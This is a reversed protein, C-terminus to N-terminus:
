DPVSHRKLYEVALLLLAPDDKFLGLGKNCSDCLVDRIKEQVHCHDIVLKESSKCIACSKGIKFKRTERITLGHPLKSALNKNKRDVKWATECCTIKDKGKGWNRWKLNVPGCTM